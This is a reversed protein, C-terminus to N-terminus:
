KILVPLILNWNTGDDVSKYIGETTAAYVIDPNKPHLRICQVGGQQNLSWDLSKTWTKGGDSTKLIGIGYSGRTTRIVTGGISKKYGYVEGTGIYIVNTDVPNIAIGMVGLTPYGTHIRRWGNGTSADDTRWLGGSASGALIITTDLPNVAVSIMRGPVNHPGMQEWSAQVTSKNKANKSVIKEYQFSKYFKDAPIDKQPYARSRTWFELAKKSGPVYHDEEIMKGTNFLNNTSFLLLILILPILFIILKRIKM